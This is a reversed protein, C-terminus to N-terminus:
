RPSTVFSVGDVHGTRLALLAAISPMIDITRRPAHRTPRNTMLPVLM